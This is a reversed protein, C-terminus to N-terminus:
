NQLFYHAKNNLAHLVLPNEFNKFIRSDKIIIGQYQPASLSMSIQRDLREKFLNLLTDYSDQIDLLSSPHELNKLLTQIYDHIDGHFYHHYTTKLTQYLVDLTMLGKLYIDLPKLIRYPLEVLGEILVGARPWGANWADIIYQTQIPFRKNEKRVIVSVIDDQDYIPEIIDIFIFYSEESEKFSHKSIEIPCSELWPGKKIELGINGRFYDKFYSEKTRVTGMNLDKLNKMTLRRKKHLLFADRLIGKKSEDKV